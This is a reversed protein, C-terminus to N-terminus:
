SSISLIRKTTRLFDLVVWSKYIKMKGGHDRFKISWHDGMRLAAHFITGRMSVIKLKTRGGIIIWGVDIKPIHWKVKGNRLKVWYRM